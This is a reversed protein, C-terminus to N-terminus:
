AAAADDASARAAVADKAVARQYEEFVDGDQSMVANPLRDYEDVIVFMKNYTCTKNRAAVGVADFANGVTLACDADIEFSLGYRDRFLVCADNVCRDLANFVETLGWDGRPVVSLDLFLVYYQSAEETPQRGVHLGGFLGEFSEKALFDYYARLMSCLLSKGFRPPRPLVIHPEVIRRHDLFHIFDSNDKFYSDLRFIPLDSDNHVFYPRRSADRLDNASNLAKDDPWGDPLSSALM